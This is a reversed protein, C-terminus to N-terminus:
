PATPVVTWGPAPDFRTLARALEATKTGLDKQYVTGDHNVIFTMIGSNGYQAPYAVAAFGGIMHGKVIYDLAGGKANKTQGTLMRFLYGHYPTPAETKRYGEASATKVMPGLPSPPENTATPWYLGDRTGATSEFRRAYERVGDRTHDAAAYDRQADVIALMVNIVSLENTGIRRALMERKGAASDFRWREGSKVLPFAFPWDADGILLTVRREGDALISHKQEYSTVFRQVVDRDAVPDGSSLWPESDTGLIAIVAGRDGSKVAQVLSSAADEPAAFTVQSALALPAFAITFLALGCAIWRARLRSMATTKTM